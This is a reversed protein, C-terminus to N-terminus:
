AKAERQQGQIPIEIDVAFTGANDTNLMLRARDGYLEHFRARTNSLGIGSSPKAAPRPSGGSNRVSLRLVEGDRRAGIRIAGSGTQPEIGHHIANEVLPQLILTPVPVGLAAGDIEKEIKLRDGFRVQQIDLYRNLFELERSLPIEQDTTDLAARLLESLNAIMDDAAHPDKHVLTSIANLTNFLFHPHLQMRLAKLRAEVLSATLEAAKREREDSRRSFAFATVISVVIWYMPLDFGMRVMADRTARRPDRGSGQMARGPPPGPPNEPDFDVSGPPAGEPRDMPAGLRGDPPGLPQPGLARIFGCAALALACGLLHVPVNRALRDRELPFTLTLWVAAPALLAWPLLNHLAIRFAQSSLGTTVVFQGAFAVLLLCWIGLVIGYIALPHRTSAPPTM